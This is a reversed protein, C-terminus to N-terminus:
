VTPVGFAPESTPTAVPAVSPVPRSMPAPAAAPIGSAPFSGPLAAGVAPQGPLTNATPAVVGYDALPKVREFPVKAPEHKTSLKDSLVLNFPTLTSSIFRGFKPIGVNTDSDGVYLLKLSAEAGVKTSLFAAVQTSIDKFNEGTIVALETPTGIAQLIEVIQRYYESEDKEKYKQDEPDFANAWFRVKVSGANDLSTGKFTIDLNGATDKGEGTSLEAKVLKVPVSAGPKIPSYDSSPAAKTFLSM